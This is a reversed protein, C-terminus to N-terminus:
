IVSPISILFTFFIDFVYTNQFLKVNKEEFELGMEFSFKTAIKKPFNCTQIIEQLIKSKKQLITTQM